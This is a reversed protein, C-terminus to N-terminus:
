ESSKKAKVWSLQAQKFENLLYKQYQNALPQDKFKGSGLGSCSGSGAVSGSGLFLMNEQGISLQAVEFSWYLGFKHWYVM